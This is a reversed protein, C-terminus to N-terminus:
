TTVVHFRNRLGRKRLKEEHGKGIDEKAKRNGRSEISGWTLLLTGKSQALYKLLNKLEIRVRNGVRILERIGNIRKMYLCDTDVRTQHAGNMM